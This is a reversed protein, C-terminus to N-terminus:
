TNNLNRVKNWIRTNLEPRRTKEAVDVDVDVDVSEERFVLTVGRKM